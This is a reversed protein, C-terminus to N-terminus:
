EKKKLPVKTILEFKLHHDDENPQSFRYEFIRKSTPDILKVVRAIDITWLGAWAKDNFGQQTSIKKYILKVDEKTTNNLFELLEIYKELSDIIWQHNFNPEFYNSSKIYVAQESEIKKWWISATKEKEITSYKLINNLLEDVITKYSKSVKTLLWNTKFLYNGVSRVDDKSTLTKESFWEFNEALASSIKIVSNEKTSEHNNLDNDLM